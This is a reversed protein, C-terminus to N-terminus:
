EECGKEENMTEILARFVTAGAYGINILEGRYADAEQKVFYFQEAGDHPRFAKIPDALKGDTRRQAVFWVNRTM